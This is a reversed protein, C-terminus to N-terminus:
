PSGFLYDDNNRFLDDGATNAFADDFKGMLLDHNRDLSTMDGNNATSFAELFMEDEHESINALSLDMTM